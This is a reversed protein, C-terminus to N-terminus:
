RLPYCLSRIQAKIIKDDIVLDESFHKKFLVCNCDAGLVRFLPLLHKYTDQKADAYSFLSNEPEIGRDELNGIFVQRDRIRQVAESLEDVKLRRNRLAISKALTERWSSIDALFEDDLTKTSKSLAGAFIAISGNAAAEKSFSEWIKDWKSVYDTYKYDFKRISGQLPNEYVPREYGNFM